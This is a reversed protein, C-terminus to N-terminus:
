KNGGFTYGAIVGIGWLYPYGLRGFPEFYFSQNIPFRYGGRIGGTFMPNMRNVEFVLNAGADAQIFWKDHWFNLVYWRFLATFELVNIGTFNSSGTITLGVAFPTYLPLNYDFGLFVGGAFNERSNMNMELGLGLNAQNDTQAYINQGLAFTLFFATFLWQNPFPFISSKKLIGAM